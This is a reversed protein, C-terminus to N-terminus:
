KLLRAFVQNSIMMGRRSLTLSDRDSVLLGLQILDATESGYISELTLNFEREFAHRNVGDALRLGLFMYEAMADHQTLQQEDLRELHGSTVQRAYDELTEPNRFRVGYGERLFSHAAVGLGRYGDRLWYSSNHQSRYGPRAYNAIEYHEFDNKTLLNDALEFMDASLDEDALEPSDSHYLNAFLTGEEVTLGYVSIHEPCLTIASLLESRWQELSQGPLSHILDISINNFGAERADLFAQFSQESTHIRGLCKLFCDDFSQIGLSLRNIGANRFGKLSIHDITGPNAELTIEANNSIGTLKSIGDLLGGLQIPQLLSPTGGGFYISALPETESVQLQLEKLLLEPYEALDNIGPSASIFACYHCKQVCFPVHIYLRNHM